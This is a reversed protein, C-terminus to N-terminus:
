FGWSAHYGVDELDQVLKKLAKPGDPRKSFQLVGGELTCTYGKETMRRVAEDKPITTEPEETKKRKM